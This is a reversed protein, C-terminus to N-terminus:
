NWTPTVLNLKFTPRDTTEPRAPGHARPAHGPLVPSLAANVTNKQVSNRNM